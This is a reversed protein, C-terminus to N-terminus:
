FFVDDPKAALDAARVVYHVDIMCRGPPGDGCRHVAASVQRAAVASGSDAPLALWAMGTLTALTIALSKVAATMVGEEKL